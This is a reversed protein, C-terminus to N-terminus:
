LIYVLGFNLDVGVNAITYYPARDAQNPNPRYAPDYEKVYEVQTDRVLSPLVDVGNKRLVKLTSLEPVVYAARFRIGARLSLHDNLAREIGITSQFGISLGMDTEIEGDYIDNDMLFNDVQNIKGNLYLSPGVSFYPHWSDGGLDNWSYSILTSIFLNQFTFKTTNTYIEFGTRSQNEITQGFTKQYHLDVDFRFNNFLAIGIFGSLQMGGGNNLNIADTENIDAVANSNYYQYTPLGLGYGLNFGFSLPKQAQLLGSLILLFAISYTKM